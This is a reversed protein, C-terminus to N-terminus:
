INICFEKIYDEKSIKKLISFKKEICDECYMSLSFFDMEDNGDESLIYFNINDNLSHNCDQNKCKFNQKIKIAIRAEQSIDGSINNIKNSNTFINSYDIDTYFVMKGKKNNCKHCSVFLNHQSSDGGWGAPFNHEIECVANNEFKYISEFTSKFRHLNMKNMHNYTNIDIKENLFNNIKEIQNYDLINIIKEIQDKDNNNLINEIECLQEKTIFFKLKNIEKTTFQKEFDSNIMKTMIEKITEKYNDIFKADEKNLIHSHKFADNLNIEDKKEEFKVKEGCLYCRNINNTIAYKKINKIHSRNRSLEPSQVLKYFKKALDEFDDIDDYHFIFKKKFLEKFDEFYLENDKTYKSQNEKYLMYAINFIKKYVYNRLSDEIFKNIENKSLFTSVKSVFDEENVSNIYKDLLSIVESPETEHYNPKSELYYNEFHNM